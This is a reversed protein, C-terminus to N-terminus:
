SCATGFLSAGGMVLGVGFAIEALKHGWGKLEGFILLYGAVIVSLGAIVMVAIKLEASVKNIPTCIETALLGAHAAIPWAMMALFTVTSITEIIASINWKKEM